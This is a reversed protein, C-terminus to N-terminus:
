FLLDSSNSQNPSSKTEPVDWIAPEPKPTYENPLNPSSTTEPVDWIAAESEPNPQQIKGTQNTNLNNSGLNNFVGKTVKAIDENTIHGEKELSGLINKIAKKRLKRAKRDVTNLATKKLGWSITKNERLGAIIAQELFIEHEQIAKRTSIIIEDIPNSKDLLSRFTKDFYQNFAPVLHRDIHHNGAITFGCDFPAVLEVNFGRCFRSSVEDWGSRYEPSSWFNPHNKIDNVANIFSSKTFEGAWPQNSSKQAIILMQEAFGAVKPNTRNTNYFETLFNTIDSWELDSNTQVDYVEIKALGLQCQSNIDCSGKGIVDNELADLDVIIWKSQGSPVYINDFTCRYSDQCSATIDHNEKSQLCMMPSSPNQEYEICLAIDPKEFISKIASGTQPAIEVVSRDIDWSEGTSKTQNVEIEVTVQRDGTIKQSLLISKSKNNLPSNVIESANALPFNLFSAISLLLLTLRYNM